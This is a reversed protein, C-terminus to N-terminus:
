IYKCIYFKICHTLYSLIGETKFVNQSDTANQMVETRVCVNLSFCAGDNGNRLFCFRMSLEFSNLPVVTPKLNYIFRRQPYARPVRGTEDRLSPIWLLKIM